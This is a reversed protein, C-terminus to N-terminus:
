QNNGGYITQNGNFLNKDLLRQRQDGEVESFLSDKRNSKGDINSSIVPQQQQQQGVIFGQHEVSQLYSFPVFGTQNNINMVLVWGFNNKEGLIKVREGQMITLQNNEIANYGALVLAWKEALKPADFVPAIDPSVYPKLNGFRLKIAINAIYLGLAIFILPYQYWPEDNFAETSLLVFVSIFCPLEHIMFDMIHWPSPLACCLKYKFITRQNYHLKIIEEKYKRPNLIQVCRLQIGDAICAIFLLNDNRHIGFTASIACAMMLRVVELVLGISLFVFLVIMTAQYRQASVCECDSCDSNSSCFFNNDYGFFDEKLGCRIDEYCSTMAAASCDPSNYGNFYTDACYTDYSNKANLAIFPWQWQILWIIVHTVHLWVLLGKSPPKVEEDNSQM